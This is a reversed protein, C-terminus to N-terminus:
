DKFARVNIIKIMEYVVFAFLNLLIVQFALEFSIPVISIVRRLPTAFFIIEVIILAIIGINM